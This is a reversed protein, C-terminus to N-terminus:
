RMGMGSDECRGDTDKPPNPSLPNWLRDNLHFVGPDGYCCFYFMNAYSALFPEIQIEPLRLGSMPHCVASWRRSFCRPMGSWCFPGFCDCAQGLFGRLKSWKCSWPFASTHPYSSCDRVGPQAVHWTQFASSPRRAPRLIWVWTESRRGAARPSSAEPIGSCSQGAEWVRCFRLRGTDNRPSTGHGTLKAM